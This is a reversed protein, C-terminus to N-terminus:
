ALRATLGRTPFSRRLAKIARVDPPCAPSPPAPVPRQCPTFSSLGHRIRASRRSHHQATHCARKQSTKRSTPRRRRPPGSHCVRQSVQDYRLLRGIDGRRSVGSFGESVLEQVPRYRYPYVGDPRTMQDTLTWYVRASSEPRPDSVIEADTLPVGPDEQEDWAQKENTESEAKAATNLFASEIQTLRMVLDVLTQDDKDGPLSDFNGRDWPMALDVVKKLQGGSSDKFPLVMRMVANRFPSLHQKELKSAIGANDTNNDDPAASTDRPLNAYQSMGTAYPTYWWSPYEPSPVLLHYVKDGSVSKYYYWTEVPPLEKTTNAPLTQVPARPLGRLRNIQDEVAAIRRRVNTAVEPRYDFRPAIRLDHGCVSTSIAMTGSFGIGGSEDFALIGELVLDLSSEPLHYEEISFVPYVLKIRVTVTETIDRTKWKCKWRKCKLYPISVTISFTEEYEITEFAVTPINVFASVRFSLGARIAGYAALGRSSVLGGFDADLGFNGRFAFGGIGGQLKKEPLEGRLGLTARM